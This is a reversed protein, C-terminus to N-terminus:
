RKLSCGHITALSLWVAKVACAAQFGIELQTTRAAFLDDVWWPQVLRPSERRSPRSSCSSLAYGFRRFETAPSVADVCTFSPAGVTKRVPTRNGAVGSLAEGTVPLPPGRLPGGVPAVRDNRCAHRFPLRPPRLVRLGSLATLTRSGGSTSTSRVLDTRMEAPPSGLM